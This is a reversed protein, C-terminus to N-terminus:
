WMHNIIVISIYLQQHLPPQIPIPSPSHQPVAEERKGLGKKPASVIRMTKKLTPRPNERLFEILLSTM